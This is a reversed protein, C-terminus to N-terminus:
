IRDKLTKDVEKFYAAELKDVLLKKKAPSLPAARIAALTNIRSILKFNPWIPPNKCVYIVEVHMAYIFISRVEYVTDEM